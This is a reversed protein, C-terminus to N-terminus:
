GGDSETVAGPHRGGRKGGAARRGRNNEGFEDTERTESIVTVCMEEGDNEGNRM